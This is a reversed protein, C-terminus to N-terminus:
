DVGILIKSHGSDGSLVESRLADGLGFRAGPAARAFAHHGAVNVVGALEAHQDFDVALGIEDRPGVLEHDERALERLVDGGGRRDRDIAVGHGDLTTSNRRSAKSCCTRALPFGSCRTSRIMSPLISAYKLSTTSM